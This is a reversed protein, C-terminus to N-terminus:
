WGAKKPTRGASTMLPPTIAKAAIPSALADM